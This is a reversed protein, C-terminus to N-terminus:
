EETVMALITQSTLFTREKMQQLKDIAYFAYEGENRRTERDFCYQTYEPKEWVQVLTLKAIFVLIVSITDSNETM